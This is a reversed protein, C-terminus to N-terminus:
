RKRGELQRGPGGMEGMEHDISEERGTGSLTILRTREAVQPGESRM